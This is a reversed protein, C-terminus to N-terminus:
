HHRYKRGQLGRPKRPRSAPRPCRCRRWTGHEEPYRCANKGQRTSNDTSKRGQTVSCDCIRDSDIVSCLYADFCLPKLVCGAIELGHFCPNTDFRRANAGSIPFQRSNGSTRARSGPSVPTSASRGRGRMRGLRAFAAYVRPLGYRASAM